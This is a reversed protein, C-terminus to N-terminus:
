RTAAFYTKCCQVLCYKKRLNSQSDFCVKTTKNILGFPKRSVTEITENRVGVEVSM